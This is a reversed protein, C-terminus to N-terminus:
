VSSKWNLLWKSTRGIWLFTQCETRSECQFTSRFMSYRVSYQLDFHIHIKFSRVKSKFTSSLSVTSYRSSHWVSWRVNFQFYNLQQLNDFQIYFQIDFTSYHVDFTSHGINFQSWLCRESLNTYMISSLVKCLYVDLLHTCRIKEHVDYKRLSWWMGAWVFTVYTQAILEFILPWRDINM